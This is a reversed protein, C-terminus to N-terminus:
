IVIGCMQIPKSVSVTYPFLLLHLGLDPIAIANSIKMSSLTKTFKILHCLGFSCPSGHNSLKTLKGNFSSSLCAECIDWIKTNQRNRSEQTIMNIISPLILMEKTTAFKLGLLCQPFINNIKKTMLKTVYTRVQPSTKPVCFLYFKQSKENQKTQFQYKQVTLIVM